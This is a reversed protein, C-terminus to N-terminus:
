GRVVLWASLLTLLAVLVGSGAAWVFRKKLVMALVASIVVALWALPNIMLLGVIMGAPGIPERPIAVFVVMGGLFVMLVYALLGCIVGLCSRAVQRAWGPSPASGASAEAGM